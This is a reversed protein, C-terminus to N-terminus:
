STMWAYKRVRYLSLSYTDILTHNYNQMSQVEYNIVKIQYM